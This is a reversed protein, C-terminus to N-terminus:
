VRSRQVTTADMPTLTSLGWGGVVVVAMGTTWSHTQKKRQDFGTNFFLFLYFYVYLLLLLLVCGLVCVCVCVRVCVCECACVCM